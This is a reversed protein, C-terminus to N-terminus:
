VSSESVGQRRPIHLRPRSWPGVNNNNTKFHCMVYEQQQQLPVFGLLPASPPSPTPILTLRTTSGTMEFSNELHPAYTSTDISSSDDLNDEALALTSAKRMSHRSPTLHHHPSPTLTHPFMSKSSSHFHTQYQPSVHPSSCLHFNVPQFSEDRRTSPLGLDRHGTAAETTHNQRHHPPTAEQPEGHPSPPDPSPQSSSETASYTSSQSGAQSKKRHPLSDTLSCNLVSVPKCHPTAICGIEYDGEPIIDYESGRLLPCRRVSPM